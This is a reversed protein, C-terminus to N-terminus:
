QGGLFCGQSCSFLGRCTVAHRINQMSQAQAKPRSLCVAIAWVIHRPTYLCPCAAAAAAAVGPAAGALMGACWSCPLERKLAAPSINEQVNRQLLPLVDGIDTFEVEAAGPFPFSMSGCRWCPAHMCWWTLVCAKVAPLCLAARGQGARM